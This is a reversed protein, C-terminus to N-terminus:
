EADWNLLGLRKDENWKDLPSMQYYNESRGKTREIESIPKIVVKFSDEPQKNVLINVNSVSPHLSIKQQANM